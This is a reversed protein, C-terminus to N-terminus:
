ARRRGRALQRLRAERSAPGVGAFPWLEVGAEVLMRLRESRELALIRYAARQERTLGDLRAVPLVDVAIVRHGTRRWFVAANVVGPDLFGSLVYILAGPEIIPARFRAFPSGSAATAAIAALVRQLHRPGSGPALDRHATTLDDLGIRDAAHAYGAAIASAAERLLDMSSVGRPQTGAAPWSAVREGVDAATDLVIHVITDSTAATRRVFLDGPSRALRATAKWDIRRLRDGPRFPHIDRFDGGDGPRASDHSGASVQLRTPLPLSRIPTFGASVARRAILRPSPTSVFAADEATLRYELWIVQQPGSHPLEVRGAVVRRAAASADAAVFSAARGPGGHRVQVTQAGAPPVIAASYRLRRVSGPASRVTIRARSRSPSPRHLWALAAAATFPLALVAIDPRSLVLGATAFVLALTVAAPLAPTAQWRHDIEAEIAEGREPSAISGNATSTASDALGAAPHAHSM